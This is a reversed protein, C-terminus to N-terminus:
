LARGGFTVGRFRAERGLATYFTTRQFDADSHFTANSFDVGGEFTAGSFNAEKDFKLSAFDDLYEPFFVGAFNFDRRELKRTVALHFPRDHSAAKDKNPYHLVCYRKGEHEAYWTQGQCASRYPEGVECVPDTM